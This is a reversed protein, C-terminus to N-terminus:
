LDDVASDVGDDGGGENRDRAEEGEERRRSEDSGM